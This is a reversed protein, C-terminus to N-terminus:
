EDAEDSSEETYLDGEMEDSGPKKTKRSGARSVIDEWEEDLHTRKGILLQYVQKDDPNERWIAYYEDSPWAKREGVNVQYAAAKVSKLSQEVTERPYSSDVIFSHPALELAAKRDALVRNESKKPKARRPAPPAKEVMIVGQAREM